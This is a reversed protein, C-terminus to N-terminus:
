EAVRFVELERIAPSQGYYATIRLELTICQAPEFRLAFRNSQYQAM